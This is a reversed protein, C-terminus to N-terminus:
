QPRTGKFCHFYFLACQCQGTKKPKCGTKIPLFCVVWYTCHVGTLHHGASAPSAFLPTHPHTGSVGTNPWVSYEIKRLYCKHQASVLFTFVRPHPQDASAVAESGDSFSPYIHIKSLCFFGRNGIFRFRNSSHPPHLSM